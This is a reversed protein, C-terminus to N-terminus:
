SGVEASARAPEDKGMLPADEHSAQSTDAGTKEDSAEEAQDNDADAVQDKDRAPDQRAAKAKAGQARSEQNKAPSAKGSGGAVSLRAKLERDIKEAISLEAEGEGEGELTKIVEIARARYFRTLETADEKSMKGMQQDFEIEKIAKLLSRKERLLEDRQGVPKWFEEEDLEGAEDYAASMGANWLFRATLIVALWGMCLFLVPPGFHWRNIHLIGLWGSLLLALVFLWTMARRQREDLLEAPSEDQHQAEVPEAAANGKSTRGQRAAKRPETRTESNTM